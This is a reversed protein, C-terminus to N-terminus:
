LQRTDSDEPAQIAGSVPVYINAPCSTAPWMIGSIAKRTCIQQFIIRRAVLRIILVPESGSCKKM